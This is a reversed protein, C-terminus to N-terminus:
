KAMNLYYTEALEGDTPPKKFNEVKREPSYSFKVLEEQPHNGTHDCWLITLLLAVTPM